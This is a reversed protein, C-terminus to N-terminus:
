RRGGPLKSHQTGHAPCRLSGTAISIYSSIGALDVGRQLRDVRRRALVDDREALM